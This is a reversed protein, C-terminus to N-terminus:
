STSRRTPAIIADPLQRMSLVTHNGPSLQDIEPETTVRDIVPQLRTTQMSNSTAHKHHSPRVEVPVPPPHNRHEGTPRPRHEAM